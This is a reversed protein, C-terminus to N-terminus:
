SQLNQVAEAQSQNYVIPLARAEAYADVSIDKSWCRIGRNWVTSKISM